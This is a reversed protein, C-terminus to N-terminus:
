FNFQANKSLVKICHKPCASHMAISMNLRNSLAHSFTGPLPAKVIYLFLCVFLVCVCM